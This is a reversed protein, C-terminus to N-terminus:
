KKNRNRRPGLYPKKGLRVAAPSLPKIQTKQSRTGPKRSAAQNRKIAEVAESALARCFFPSSVLLVGILGIM